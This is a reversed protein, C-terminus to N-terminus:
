LGPPAVVHWQGFEPDFLGIGDCKSADAVVAVPASRLAQGVAKSMRAGSWEHIARHTERWAFLGAQEHLHDIMEVTAPDVEFWPPDNAWIHITQGYRGLAGGLRLLIRGAYTPWGAHICAVLGRGDADRFLSGDLQAAPMVHYAQGLQALRAAEILADLPSLFCLVARGEDASETAIRLAGPAPEHALVWAPPSVFFPVADPHRFKGELSM